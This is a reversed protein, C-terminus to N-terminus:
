NGRVKELQPLSKELSALASRLQKNVKSESASPPSDKLIDEIETKLKSLTEYVKAPTPNEMDLELLVDCVKLLSDSSQPLNDM